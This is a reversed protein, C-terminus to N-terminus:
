RRRLIQLLLLEDYHGIDSRAQPKRAPRFVLICVMSVQYPDATDRFDATDTTYSLFREPPRPTSTGLFLSFTTSTGDGSIVILLTYPRGLEFPVLVGRTIPDYNIKESLLLEPSTLPRVGQHRKVLKEIPRM